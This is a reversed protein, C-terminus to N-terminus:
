PTGGPERARLEVRRLDGDVQTRVSWEATAAGLEIRWKGSPLDDCRAVFEGAPSLRLLVQRDLGADNSHTLLLLLSDPQAKGRLMVACEHTADRVELSAAIGLAAARRARKFDEDLGAGEWHYNPPLRPDAGDIAVSLMAVSACVATAPILWMLWFVPNRKFTM